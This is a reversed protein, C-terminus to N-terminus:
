VNPSWKAGKSLNDRAWLPQLNTYHIAAKQQELDTLDFSTLPKIHDIHWGKLGYNGWNMGPEFLSEIYKFLFDSTCGAGTVASVERNGLQRKIAHATRSRLSACLKRYFKNKLVKLKYCERCGQGKRAGNVSQKTKHGAALCICKNKTASRSYPENLILGVKLFAEKAIEQKLRKPSPDCKKCIRNERKVQQANELTEWKECKCTNVKVFCTKGSGRYESLLTRDCQLFAEIAWEQSFPKRYM